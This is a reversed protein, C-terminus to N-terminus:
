PGVVPSRTRRASVSRDDLDLVVQGAARVAGAVLDDEAAALHHALRHALGPRGAGLAGRVEDDGARQHEVVPADDLGVEAHPVAADDADALGPLGSVMGPTSGASTMPGDVSTSAPLPRM